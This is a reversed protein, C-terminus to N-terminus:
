MGVCFIQFLFFPSTIHEKFVEFFKPMPIEFENKGYKNTLAAVDGKTLGKANVYYSVKKDIPFLLEEFQGKEENFIYKMQQFMFFVENTKKSRQLEVIKDEGCHLPPVCHAVECEDINQHTRKNQKTKTGDCFIM